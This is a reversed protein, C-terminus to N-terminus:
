RRWSSPSRAGGTAISTTAITNSSPAHRSWARPERPRSSTSSGSATSGPARSATSRCSGRRATPSRRWTSRTVPLRCRRWSRSGCAPSSRWADRPTKADFAALPARGRLAQPINPSEAGGGGGGGIPFPDMSLMGSFAWTITAIGFVLGLVMHWRKQGRYPIGSPAGDRRYRRSPSYMWAGVVVGLIAAVTGIGSSWVVVRSWEPGHKRLPTIYFWHPIPGLYAGLRSSTTTYQVVEGLAQSVYVQEGNPWSFKWVPSLNRFNQQVTWQDVEELREIDAEQSPLGTWASAIRRVTLTSVEGPEEGTDAYVLGENFRYVPRGDFTNLTVAPPPEDTGFNAYAEAPSLRITGPDLAPSRKLVDAPTVDPFGWYMMGIGSPFWILFLLCLAVGLWRHVFNLLRKM